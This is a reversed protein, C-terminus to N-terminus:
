RSSGGGGGNDGAPPSHASARSAASARRTRSVHTHLPRRRSAPSASVRSSVGCWAPPEKANRLHHELSADSLAVNVTRPPEVPSAPLQCKTKAVLDRMAHREGAADEETVADGRLYRTASFRGGLEACTRGLREVVVVQTVDDAAMKPAEFTVNTALLDIDSFRWSERDGVARHLAVSGTVYLALPEGAAQHAAVVLDIGCLVRDADAERRKSFEHDM